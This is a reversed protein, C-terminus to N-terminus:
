SAEASVIVRAHRIVKDHLMYGKEIEEIVMHAPVGEKPMQMLADHLEPNFPKGMVEFEKVGQAEMIRKLKSYILEVGRFFVDEASNEKVSGAKNAKIMREFDDLVPLLKQILDENSYKIISASENEVRKKYNEFEAAKRLLQDKYQLVGAELETIKESMLDLENLEPLQPPAMENENMPDQPLEPEVNDVM